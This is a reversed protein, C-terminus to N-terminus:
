FQPHCAKCTTGVRFRITTGRGAPFEGTESKHCSKCPLLGHFGAFFDAMGRHTYRFLKFNATSHCSECTGEVQGLHPDTHCTLCESSMPKLQMARGAGSPYTKVDTRHCKACEVTEHKGTLKFTSREHSFRVAAFKAGDVAHCTACAKGVQGLHVDAHCTACETSPVRPRVVAAATSATRVPQLVEGPKHCAVCKVDTHRGGYFDSVRPHRFGAVSFGDPKHCGDCTRGFEGKHPDKHCSACTATAGGFDIVKRALPVAEALRTTHCKECALPDHKGTLPFPTRARHDFTAGRFTTETHCAKCDEKVSDRHVQSHCSSCQEFRIPKTIATTHCSACAVTAHAGALAFRTRAHDITKTSWQTTTHCSTCSPGLSKRHPVQHCASCTDFRTGRFVGNVHCKACTVERHAGTLVFRSRAHDFTGGSVKFPVKTSHCTACAAGLAGKHVDTHCSACAPRADLFSRKKHCAECRNILERHRGELAYGTESTHDFGTKDVRRLEGDVGAHEVHCTVCDTTVSRHVGTKKAIRGAIPAHCALCKSATVRRGAEHCKTCSAAGNLSAHAKALAGPSVLAGLQGADCTAAWSVLGAMVIL